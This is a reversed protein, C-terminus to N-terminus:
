NILEKKIRFKTFILIYLYEPRLVNKHKNLFTKEETISLRIQKPFLNFIAYIGKFNNKMMMIKTHVTLFTESDVPICCWRGLCHNQFTKIM